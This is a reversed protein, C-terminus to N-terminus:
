QSSMWSTRRLQLDLNREKQIPEMESPKPAPQACHPFPILTLEGTPLLNTHNSPVLSPPPTQCTSATSVSPPARQVVIDISANTPGVIPLPANLEDISPSTPLPMIACPLADVQKSIPLSAQSNCRIILSQFCLISISPELWFMVKNMMFHACM